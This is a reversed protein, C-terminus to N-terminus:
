IKQLTFKGIQTKVFRKRLATVSQIYPLSNTQRAALSARRRFLSVAQEVEPASYKLFTIGIL